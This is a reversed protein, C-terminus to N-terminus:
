AGIVEAKYAVTNSLTIDMKHLNGSILTDWPTYISVCDGLKEGGYVVKASSTNRKVYYDYVRQATEQGIDTSVLTASRIEKINARDNATVNPNSVSYVTETDKYKVGNITIGGSADAIYTHASVRVGTVISSTKVSAGTYTRSKPIETPVTPQNFVRLTDGGDTALCVGWAFMVQQIASRNTGAQIIGKLTKDSVGDAYEVQFPAALSSLLSKASIGSLYAGGSFASGDLVGLADKCNISYIRDSTRSSDEIYFVGLLNGNNWAEVPQKLQFMYDVDSKSNLVWKFTSVPLEASIENMQNTITASRLEEMGFERVVGFLIANIKARRYPLVTKKLTIIIKDYSEVRKSCFYQANDPAYDQDAKLTTGQYWKVNVSSCYEGTAADFTISIGMSSFQKPFSITIVPQNQFEGNENSIESSWFAYQGNTYCTDFTGNLTWRNRELTIAKKTEAGFPIKTLDSEQTQGTATVSAANAAGVAVDKYIVTTKGM